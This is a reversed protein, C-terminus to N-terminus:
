HEAKDLATKIDDKVKYTLICSFCLMDFRSIEMSILFGSLDIESDAGRWVTRPLLNWCAQIGTGGVVPRIGDPSCAMHDKRVQDEKISLAKITKKVNM